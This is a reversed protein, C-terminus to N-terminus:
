CAYGSTEACPLFKRIVHFPLRHCMPPVDADAGVKAAKTARNFSARSEAPIDGSPNRLGINYENDPAPNCSMVTPFAGPHPVGPNLTLAEKNM